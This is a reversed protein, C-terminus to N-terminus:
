ASGFLVSRHGFAIEFLEKTGAEPLHDILSRRGRQSGADDGDGINNRTCRRTPRRCSPTEGAQVAESRKGEGRGDTTATRIPMPRRARDGVTPGDGTGMSDPPGLGVGVAVGMGLAADHVTVPLMIVGRACSLAV